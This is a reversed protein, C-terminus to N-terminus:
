HAVYKVAGHKILIDDIQYEDKSSFLMLAVGMSELEEIKSELNEFHDKIKIMKGDIKYVLIVINPDFEEM